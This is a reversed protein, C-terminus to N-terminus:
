AMGIPANVVSPGRIYENPTAPSSYGAAVSQIPSSSGGSRIGVEQLTPVSGSLPIPKSHPPVVGSQIPSISGGSRIGVEQLTPVFPPPFIMWWQPGCLYVSLPTYQLRLLLPGSFLAPNSCQEGALRSNERRFGRQVRQTSQPLVTRLAKRLRPLVQAPNRFQCVRAVIFSRIARIVRFFAPLTSVVSSVSPWLPPRVFGFFSPGSSLTAAM